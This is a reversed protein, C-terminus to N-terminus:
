IWRYLTEFVSGLKFPSYCHISVWTKKYVEGLLESILQSRRM